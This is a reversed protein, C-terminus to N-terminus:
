NQVLPPAQAVNGASSVNANRNLLEFIDFVTVLGLIKNQEDAVPLCRSGSQAMNEMIAALPTQPKIVRVPRSMVWKIRINLSADDLPRRWKTFVPRLYPSIAGTINSNSVIGELVGDTGVMLYGTDQQQMKTLAQQVSDNPNSWVVDKKMINSAPTGLSISVAQDPLVAVSDAMKQIAESVEDSTPERSEDTAAAKEKDKAADEALETDAQDSSQGTQQEPKGKNQDSDEEESEAKAEGENEEEAKAETTGEAKDESQGKAQPEDEAEAQTEDEGKAEAQPEDKAKAEGESEAKEEGEDKAEAQSEDKAKAEGESEAKEEGESKAEAQPEDKAQAEGESEEEAKAETAGEAKEEGEDKAEAQPEDKTQAEGESEIKEEDEGKAEAQPEDKTKAEDESETKEGGEDKAEAQPEDKAKAEGESEEEAKAETAGEAKEESQDKAQPEDQAKAETEDESKAEAQPEDKAKAEGESEAEEETERKAKQEAEAKTQAETEANAQTEAKAKEEAEANIKEENKTKGFVADPFVAGCTFPPYNTVTIEVCVLTFKEDRALGLKEEPNDWPEGIFVDSQVFHKHNELQERFVRDWSGVLLNGAESLSDSAAQAEKTTGSKINQQIQAPVVCKELLSTMQEPMTILGALIFLGKRGFIIQFTGELTGQAKVLNVAVLKEFRKELDAVTETTIQGPGCQMPVGFMGSIDDCFAKFAQSSLEAAKSEVQTLVETM